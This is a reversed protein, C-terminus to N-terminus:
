DEDFKEWLLLGVQNETQQELYHMVDNWPRWSVIDRLDRRYKNWNTKM